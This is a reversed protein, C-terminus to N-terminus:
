EVSALIREPLSDWPRAALVPLRWATAESRLWEGYLWSMWAVTRQEDQAHEKFGRGRAAMSALLAEEDVEHVFLAQVERQLRLGQFQLLDACGPRALAPLIADGEIILPGAWKVVVHHAIITALAPMLAQGIGILGDRLAEAPRQWVDATALFFHLEPQQAPTTMQQCAMRVDDALLVAVGLRRALERAAMTKGTGSSGGILLVDWQPRQAQWEEGQQM